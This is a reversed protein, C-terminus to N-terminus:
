RRGGFVIKKLALRVPAPLFKLSDSFGQAVAADEAAITRGVAADLHALDSEAIGALMHLREPEVRLRRALADITTTVPDTLRVLLVAGM